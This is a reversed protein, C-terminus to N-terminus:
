LLLDRGTHDFLRQSNGMDTDGAEAESKPRWEQRPWSGVGQNETDGDNSAQLIDLPFEGPKTLVAM